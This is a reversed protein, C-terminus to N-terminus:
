PEMEVTKDKYIEIGIPGDMGIQDCTSCLLSKPVPLVSYMGFTVGNFPVKIIHYNITDTLYINHNSYAVDMITSNKLDKYDFLNLYKPTTFNKFSVLVGAHNQTPFSGVAAFFFDSVFKSNSYPGNYNFGITDVQSSPYEFNSLTNPIAM